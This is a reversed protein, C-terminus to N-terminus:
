PVLAPEAGTDEAGRPEPLPGGGAVSAFDDGFRAVQNWDTYEHDRTTDTSGGEKRSIRKMIFRLIPGYKTYSVAGALSVSLLPHWGTAALFAQMLAQVTAREEVHVSRASGSVSFFASPLRNLADHHTAVFRRVHAQYHGRIVSAGILVADYRAVDLDPPLADGRFLDVAHGRGALQQALRGAIKATQGYHSGYLILIRQPTM